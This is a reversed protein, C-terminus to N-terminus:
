EVTGPSQTGTWFRVQDKPLVQKAEIATTIANLALKKENMFEDPVQQLIRHCGLRLIIQGYEQGYRTAAETLFFCIERCPGVTQLALRVARSFLGIRIKGAKLGNAFVLMAQHDILPDGRDAAGEVLAIVSEFVAARLLESKVHYVCHVFIRMAKRCLTPEVLFDPKLVRKTLTDVLDTCSSGRPKQAEVIVVAKELIESLQARNVSDGSKTLTELIIGKTDAFSTTSTATQFQSTPNNTASSSSASTSSFPAPMTAIGASPQTSMSAANNGSFAYPSKYSAGPPMTTKSSVMPPPEHPGEHQQVAVALTNNPSIIGNGASSRTPGGLVGRPAKKNRTALTNNVSSTTGKGARNTSTTSPLPRKIDAGELGEKDLTEVEGRRPIANRATPSLTRASGKGKKNAGKRISPAPSKNATGRPFNVAYSNKNSSPDHTGLQLYKHPAVPVPAAPPLVRSGTKISTCSNRLKPDIGSSTTAGSSAPISPKQNQEVVSTYKQKPSPSRRTRQTLGSAVVPVPAGGGGEGNEVVAPPPRPSRMISMAQAATARASNLLMPSRTGPSSGMIIGTTRTQIVPISIGGGPSAGASSVPPAGVNTNQHNMPGVNM